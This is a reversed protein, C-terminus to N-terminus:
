VEKKINPNLKDAGCFILKLSSIGESDFSKECLMKEFM